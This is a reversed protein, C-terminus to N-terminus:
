IKATEHTDEKARYKKRRRCLRCFNDVAVIFFNGGHHNEFKVALRFRKRSYRGWIYLQKISMKM